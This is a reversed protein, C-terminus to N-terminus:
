ILPLEAFAPTTPSTSGGSPEVTFALSKSGDLHPLVATTSPAVAASDMTGASEVAHAGVLWMQYVTGDKPPEVNNMVLVAADRERSFVVTATGGSPIDGSVTRVDPAAFIQEAATPKPEPRVAIGVGIAGLGVAVAAAAAFTITRWRTSQPRMEIVKGGDVSALVRARLQSPPELATSSSVMAMTERVVRVEDAFAIAVPTPAHAILRDIDDLESQSMAHLAYPTALVLLDNANPETM